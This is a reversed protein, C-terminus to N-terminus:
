NVCGPLPAVQDGGGGGKGGAPKLERVGPPTRSWRHVGVTPLQEQKLERVGPPTRCVLYLVVMLDMLKLERVGPPTRCM